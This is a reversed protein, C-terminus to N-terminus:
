LRAPIILTITVRPVGERFDIALSLFIIVTYHLSRTANIYGLRDLLLHFLRHTKMGRMNVVMQKLRCIPVISPHIPPHLNKSPHM